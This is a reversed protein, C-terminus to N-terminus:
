DQNEKKLLPEKKSFPRHKKGPAAPASFDDDKDEGQTAPPREPPRAPPTPPPPSPHPPTLTIGSLPYLILGHAAAAITFKRM